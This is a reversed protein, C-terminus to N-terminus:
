FILGVAYRRFRLSVPEGVSLVQQGRFAVKTPGVVRLTALGGFSAANFQASNLSRSVSDTGPLTAKYTTMGGMARLQLRGITILRLSLGGGLMLSRYGAGTGIDPALYVGLRNGQILVLPLAALHNETKVGVV